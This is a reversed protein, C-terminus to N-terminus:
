VQIDSIYPIIRDHSDHNTSYDFHSNSKKYMIITRYLFPNTM